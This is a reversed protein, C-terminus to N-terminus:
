GAIRIIAYKMTAASSTMFFLGGQNWGDVRGVWFASYLGAGVSYTTIDATRGQFDPASTLTITLAGGSTNNILILERGTLPFQDGNANDATTWVFDLSLAAVPLAPFPGKPIIVPIDKRPM